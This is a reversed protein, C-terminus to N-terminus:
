VINDQEQKKKSIRRNHISYHGLVHLVDTLVMITIVFVMVELLSVCMKKFKALLGCNSCQTM